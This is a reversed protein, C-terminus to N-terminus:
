GLLPASAGAQLRVAVGSKFPQVERHCFHIRGQPRNGLVLKGVGLFEPHFPSIFPGARSQSLLRSRSPPFTTSVTEEPLRTKRPQGKIVVITVQAFRM